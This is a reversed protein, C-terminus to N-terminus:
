NLVANVRWHSIKKQDCQSKIEWIRKEYRQIKWRYFERVIENESFFLLDNIVKKWELYQDKLSFLLERKEEGIGWYAFLNIGEKLFVLIGYVILAVIIGIIFPSLIGIAVIAAVPALLLGMLVLRTKKM